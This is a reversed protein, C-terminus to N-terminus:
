LKPSDDHEKVETCRLMNKEEKELNKAINLFTNKGSM